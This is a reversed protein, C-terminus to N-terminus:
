PNSFVCPEGTTPAALVPWWFDQGGSWGLDRRGGAQRLMVLAPGLRGPAGLLNRISIGGVISQGSKRGSEEMSLRRGVEVLLDVRDQDAM